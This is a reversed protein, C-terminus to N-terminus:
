LLGGFGTVPAGTFRREQHRAFARALLNKAQDLQTQGFDRVNIRHAETRATHDARRQQSLALMDRHGAEITAAQASTLRTYHM